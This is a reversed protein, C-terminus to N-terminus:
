FYFFFVVCLFFDCESLEWRENSCLVAAAYFLLVASLLGEREKERRREVYRVVRM